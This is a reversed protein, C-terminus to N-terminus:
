FKILGDKHLAFGYLVYSLFDWFSSFSFIFAFIEAKLDIATPSFVETSLARFSARNTYVVKKFTSKM